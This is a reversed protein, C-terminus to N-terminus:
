HDTRVRDPFRVIANDRIRRISPAYYAAALLGRTAAALPRPLKRFVDLWLVVRVADSENAADHLNTDDFVVGKGNRWYYKEGREVLPKERRANDDPDTNVRLWCQRAANDGPVIVGLHYRVFGKFYGWHPEIHQHPELISFFANYVNPTARLLAATKPALACNPEICSGSKLMFAKWRATHIGEKTYNGGLASIDTIWDRVRLLAECEARIDAYASEFVRLEPYDAYREDFAPMRELLGERECRTYFRVLARKLRSMRSKRSEGPVLVSRGIDFVSAAVVRLPTLM